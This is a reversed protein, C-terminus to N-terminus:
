CHAIVGHGPVSAMGPVPALGLQAPPVLRDDPPSVRPNGPLYPDLPRPNADLYCAVLAALAQQGAANPHFSGGNVPDPFNLYPKVSNTYQGAACPVHAGWIADPSVFEIGAAAAEEYTRNTLDDQLTRMAIRDNQGFRNLLSACLPPYYPFGPAATDPFLYPYGVVIIRAAPFDHRLAAFLEADETGIEEITAPGWQSVLLGPPIPKATGEAAIGRPPFTVNFCHATLLCTAVVQSFIANNGGITVTVLGVPGDSKVDVEPPVKIGNRIVGGMIDRIVGGSCATFTFGRIKMLQDLLTPYAPNVTNASRDCNTAVTGDAFPSLGEGASYSDGLALYNGQIGTPAAPLAPKPPVQTNEYWGSIGLYGVATVIGITVGLLMWLPTSPEWGEEGAPAHTQPWLARRPRPPQAARARARAAPTPLPPLPLPRWALAAGGGLAALSGILFLWRSFAGATSSFLWWFFFVDGALLALGAGIMYVYHWVRFRTWDPHVLEIVAGGILTGIALSVLTIVIFGLVWEVRTGALPPQGLAAWFVIVFLLLAAVPVAALKVWRNIVIGM